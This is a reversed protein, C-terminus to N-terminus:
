AVEAVVLQPPLDGVAAHADNVSGPLGAQITRHGQLHNARALEGRIVVHLTEAALRLRRGAQVMRVDDGDVFDAGVLPLVVEGHLQDLAATEVLGQGTVGTIRTRRSSQQHRYR